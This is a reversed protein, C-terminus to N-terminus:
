LVNNVMEQFINIRTSKREISLFYGNLIFLVDIVYKWWPASSGIHLGLLLLNCNGLILWKNLRLKM